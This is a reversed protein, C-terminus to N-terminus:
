DGSGKFGYFYSISKQQWFTSIRILTIIALAFFSKKANFRVPPNIFSCDDKDSGEDDQNAKNGDAAMAKILDQQFRPVGKAM